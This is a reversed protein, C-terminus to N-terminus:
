WLENGIRTYAAKTDQEGEYLMVTQKVFSKLRAQIEAITALVRAGTIPDDHGFAIRIRNVVADPVTLILTAM